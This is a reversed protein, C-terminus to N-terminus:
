RAVVRELHRAADLSLGFAGLEDRLRERSGKGAVYGNLRAALASERLEAPSYDAFERMLTADHRLYYKQHYDEAAYFRADEIIPAAIGRAKAIAAQAATPFVAEM